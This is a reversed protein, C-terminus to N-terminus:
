NLFPKVTCKSTLKSNVHKFDTKLM